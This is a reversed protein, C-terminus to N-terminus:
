FEEFDWGGQIKKVAVFRIFPFQRAAVKIKVRADDRWYGKVEHCEVSGDDQLVLFDPTYTTNKALKWSVPEFAYWAVQGMRKQLELYNAYACETKNMTGKPLRGLAMIKRNM